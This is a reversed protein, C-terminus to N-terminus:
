CRWAAVSIFKLSLTVLMVVSHESVVPSTVATMPVCM